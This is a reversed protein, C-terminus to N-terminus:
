PASVAWTGSAKLLPTAPEAARVSLLAGVSAAGPENTAPLLAEVTEVNFGGEGQFICLNGPEAEPKAVSSGTPCTGGGAGEGGPAIIHVSAAPLEDSLPITFSISTEQNHIEPVPAGDVAWAGTETKGSPLTGGATWPSGNCAYTKSAGATFESGGEACTGIKGTKQEKSTVSTGSTGNTGDTGNTGAPGQPGQPGPAGQTGQPGQAGAAGAAGPKGSLAKLVKPSIQKTSTILYRGAAYAGGSMAFLVALTAAVNAYTVRRSIKSFV